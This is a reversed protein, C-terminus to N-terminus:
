KTSRTFTKVDLHLAASIITIIHFCHARALSTCSNPFVVLVVPPSRGWERRMERGFFAGRKRNKTLSAVCKLTGCTSFELIRGFVSRTESLISSYAPFAVAPFVMPVVQIAGAILSSTSRRMELIYVTRDISTENGADLM